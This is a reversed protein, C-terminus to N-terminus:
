MPYTIAVTGELIFYFFNGVESARYIPLGGEITVLKVNKSMETLDYPIFERSDDKFFSTSHLMSRIGGIDNETRQSPEKMLVSHLLTQEFISRKSPMGGKTTNSRDSFHKTRKREFIPGFILPVPKRRKLEEGKILDYGTDKKIADVM